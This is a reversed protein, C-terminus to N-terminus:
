HLSTRVASNGIRLLLCLLIPLVAPHFCQPWQLCYIVLSALCCIWLLPATKKRLKKGSFLFPIFLPNAWLLNLNWQSCYHSSCFWLYAILLSLLSTAAYLTADAIKGTLTYRKKKHEYLSLLAFFVLLLWFVYVPRLSPKPSQMSAPLLLRSKEALPQGDAMLAATQEQLAFPLFLREYPTLPRDCHMGLVLDIGFKWWELNVNMAPHLMQRYTITKNDPKYPFCCRGDLAHDLQDRVRTACNDRLLDYAYHRNEPRHNQCLATFLGQLEEPKLRLQQESVSRGEWAYEAMFDSFGCVSLMYQLKGLSFKTYFHPTNFDFTGYNFVWDMAHATDCIRLATHGFSTYFDQGPGCTLLSAFANDSLTNQARTGTSSLLLAVLCIGM